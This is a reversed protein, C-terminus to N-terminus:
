CGAQIAWYAPHGKLHFELGGNHGQGNSSCLLRINEKTVMLSLKSLFSDLDWTM